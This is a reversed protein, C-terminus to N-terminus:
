CQVILRSLKIKKNSADDVDLEILEDGDDLVATKETLAGININPIQAVQSNM